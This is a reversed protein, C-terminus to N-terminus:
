EDPRARLGGSGASGWDAVFVYRDGRVVTRRREVVRDATRGTRDVDFVPTTTTVGLHAADEASPHTPRIRETGGLLRVGCREALEDYLATRSFDAELVPGALSAPLWARDVALPEGGAHRVRALFVLEAHAPEGLEAAIGADACVELALVDSRQELGQAEVTRFLSYLAGLPQEVAAPDVFSGRGRERRLVGEASLRRVAERVTHRSVDYQEVLEHDTPFREAFEGDALRRRLDAELQAWLPLPDDRDLPRPNAAATM